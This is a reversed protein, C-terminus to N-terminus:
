VRKLVTAYAKELKGIHVAPSFKEAHKLGRAKLSTHLEDDIAIKDIAAAIDNVDLPDVYLVADGGVEPLSSVNSTIVPCGMVMAELLPLGFGEYLSPFILARAGKILFMLNRYPVYDFHYVTGGQTTDSISRSKQIEKIQNLQREVAENLWGKRGVVVLSVDSRAAAIADLIRTVNKKPELAGYFLMYKGSQLGYNRSLFHAVEASDLDRFKSPIDVAQHITVIKEEPINFSSLIDKRSHESVSVILDASRFSMGTLRKYHRLDIETSQPLVLPIIDHATVVNPVGSVKIPLPCTFHFLDPKLSTPLNVVLPRSSLYSIAQSARFVSPINFFRNSSSLKDGVASSVVNSRPKLERARLPVNLLHQFGYTLTRPGWRLFQRRTPEGATALQQIFISWALEPDRNPVRGIGYLTSVEHGKASLLKSLERAYTAIGTGQQLGLNFGDIGIKM